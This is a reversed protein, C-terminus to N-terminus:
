AKGLPFLNEEEIVKISDHTPESYEDIVPEFLKKKKKKETPEIWNKAGFGPHIYDKIQSISPGTILGEKESWTYWIMKDLETMGLYPIGSKVFVGSQILGSNQLFKNIRHRTTATNWGALTFSIRDRFVNVIRTGHLSIEFHLEHNGDPQLAIRMVSETNHGISLFIKNEKKHLAILQDFNTALLKAGM